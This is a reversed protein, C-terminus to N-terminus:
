ERWEVTIFSEFLLAIVTLPWLVSFSVLAVIVMILLPPSSEKLAGHILYVRLLYSFMGLAIGLYILGIMESM